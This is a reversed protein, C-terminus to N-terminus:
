SLTTSKRMRDAAVATMAMLHVIDLATTGGQLVHSSGHQRGLRGVADPGGSREELACGINGKGAESQAADSSGSFVRAAPIEGTWVYRACQHL